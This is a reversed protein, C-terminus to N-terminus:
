GEHGKANEVMDKFHNDMAYELLEEYEENSKTPAYKYVDAGMWRAVKVDYIDVEPPEEPHDNEDLHIRAPRGPTFRYHVEAEVESLVTGDSAEWSATFRYTHNDM